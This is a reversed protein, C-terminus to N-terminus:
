VGATAYTEEFYSKADRVNDKMGPAGEDWNAPCVEGHKEVFQLARVMRLAEPVSRGLPLNNVLEHQVIGNKDILFLGRLAVGAEPLLVGYAESIKKTLDSLLPFRLT